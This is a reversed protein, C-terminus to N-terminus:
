KKKATARKVPGKAKGAQKRNEKLRMDKPTGKSPKAVITVGKRKSRRRSVRAVNM